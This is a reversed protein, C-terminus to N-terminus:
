TDVFTCTAVMILAFWLRGQVRPLYKRCGNCDREREGRGGGMGVRRPCASVDRRRRREIEHRGESWWMYLHINYSDVYMCNLTDIIITDNIERRM